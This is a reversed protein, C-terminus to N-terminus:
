GAGMAGALQHDTGLYADIVEQNRRIEGPTGSALVAGYKLV